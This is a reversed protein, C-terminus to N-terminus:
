SVAGFRVAVRGGVRTDKYNIFKVTGFYAPHMTGTASRLYSQRNTFCRM